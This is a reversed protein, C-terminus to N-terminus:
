GIFFESQITLTLTNLGAHFGFVPAEVRSAYFRFGLGPGYLDNYHLPDTFNFGAKAYVSCNHRFISPFTKEASFGGYLDGTRPGIIFGRSLNLSIKSGERFYYVFYTTDYTLSAGVGLMESHPDWSSHLDLMEYELNFGPQFSRNQNFVLKSSLDGSYGSFTRLKTGDTYSHRQEAYGGSFFLSFTGNGNFRGEAM